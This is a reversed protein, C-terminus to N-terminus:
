AISVAETNALLNWNTDTTNSIIQNYKEILNASMVQFEARRETALLLKM